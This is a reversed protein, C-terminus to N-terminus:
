GIVWFCMLTGNRFVCEFVYDFILHLIWLMTISISVAGLKKFGSLAQESIGVARFVHYTVVLVSTFLMSIGTAEFHYLRGTTLLSTSLMREISWNSRILMPLHDLDLSASVLASFVASVLVNTKVKYRNWIMRLATM